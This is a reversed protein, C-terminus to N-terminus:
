GAGGAFRGLLGQLGTWAGRVTEIPSWAMVGRVATLWSRAQGHARGLVRGVVGSVGTWAREILGVPSWSVIRKLGAWGRSVVRGARSMVGDFLSALGSWSQAVLGTPSWRMITKIGDWARSVIRGAGGAFRGLLGQLGTWAGRVTEIPSWSVIRKLGEWGRAIVVGSRSIFGQFLSSLGSWSRAVLGIPSWAVITTFGQWVQQAESLWGKGLSGFLGRLGRWATRATRVPSWSLTRKLGKWGKSVISAAGGIFGGLVGSLGTWAGRVADVPSWSFIAKLGRYLQEALGIVLRIPAIIVNLAGGIVQGFRRGTQTISTLQAETTKVPKFLRGFWNIVGRIKDGLWGLLKGAPRFTLDFLPQVVYLGDTIGSFLGGFFASVPKWYKILLAGGLAIGGIIAGIPNTLLALSLGRVGAIATPLARKALGFLGKGAIGSALGHKALAISSMTTAYRFLAYTGVGSAVLTMLPAVITVVGTAALAVTTLGKALGPNKEAWATLGRVIRGGHDAFSVAAPLLGEGLTIRLENMKNRYLQLKNATTSSRNAFERQMSGAFRSEDSVEALADKYTQLSGVLTAVDDGYEMGFMTNLLSVRDGGEFGQLREFVDMLAGEADTNLRDKFEEVTLGMSEFAAIFGDSQNEADALRVLMANIGNAAVEPRKGMAILSANLASTTEPSLGFLKGTAGSRLLAETIERAKAPTNDSLHNIADALRDIDNIPIGLVNSLKGMAEGAAEPVIDYAIAMKSATETFRLLNEDAVGMQAGSAAIQALESAYLPIDDAALRRLKRGFADLGPADFDAVKRVDAMASEFTMADRGLGKLGDRMATGVRNTSDAIFTLNGAITSTAVMQEEAQQARRDLLLRRKEIRERELLERNLDENRRTLKRTEESLNRTSIGSDSLAGRMRQLQRTEDAHLAKLRRTEAVNRNFERTLKASPEASGKMKRALAGTKLKAEDLRQGTQRTQLKLAKFKAIDTKIAGIKKQESQLTRSESIVRKLGGAAAKGTSSLSERGTLRITFDLVSM